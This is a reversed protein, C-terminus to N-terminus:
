DNGRAKNLQNFEYRQHKKCLGSSSRPLIKGATNLFRLLFPVNMPDLPRDHREDGCLLCEERITQDDLYDEVRMRVAEQEQLAQQIEAEAPPLSENEQARYEKTLSELFSRYLFPSDPSWLDNQEATQAVKKNLGAYKAVLRQMQHENSNAIEVLRQKIRTEAENV